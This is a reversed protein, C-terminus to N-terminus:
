VIHKERYKKIKYFIYEGPVTEGKFAELFDPTNDYFIRDLEEKTFRESGVVARALLSTVGSIYLRLHNEQEKSLTKMTMEAMAHVFEIGYNFMVDYLYPAYSSLLISKYIKRNEMFYSLIYIQSYRPYFFVDAGRKIDYEFLDVILAYKDAFARYFYQRSIGMEEAISKVTLSDFDTKALLKDLAATVKPMIKDINVESVM